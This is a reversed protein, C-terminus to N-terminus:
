WTAATRRSRQNSRGKKAHAEVVALAHEVEGGRSAQALELVETAGSVVERAKQFTKKSEELEGLQKQVIAIAALTRCASITRAPTPMRSPMVFGNWSRCAIRPQYNKTLSRSKCPRAPSKDQTEMNSTPTPTLGALAVSIGVASSVTVATAATVKMWSMAITGKALTLVAPTIAATPGIVPMTLALLEAPIAAAKTESALTATLAATSITIGRRTLDTRLKDRGASLRSHVTGTPCDPM